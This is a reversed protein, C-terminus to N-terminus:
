RNELRSAYAKMAMTLYDTFGAALAEYRASFDPHSLYLDALSAYAAPACPRGWMTGVWARHRELLPELEEAEALAGDRMRNVLESEIAALESMFHTQKGAPLGALYKKSAEIHEKVPEGYHEVLWTEYDAQREPSFGKYLDDANMVQDGNLRAITRDITRILERYREAKGALKVRHESLARVHDFDPKDLLAAIEGLPLGFERYFLIQQLRLLEKEGYYRYRNDGIYAPKLLGIEDYHHLTRVTVGSIAAIQKVTLEKNM